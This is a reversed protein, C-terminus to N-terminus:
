PGTRLTTLSTFVYLPHMFPSMGSSVVPSVAGGLLTEWDSPSEKCLNYRAPDFEVLTSSSESMEADSDNILDLDVGLVFAGRPSYFSNITTVKRRMEKLTIRQTWDVELARAVLMNAEDSTPLDTFFLSPVTRYLRFAPDESSSSNWPNRGTILNLLIIGLSWVDCSSPPYPGPPVGLLSQGDERCELLGLTPDTYM